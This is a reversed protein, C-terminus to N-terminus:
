VGGGPDKNRSIFKEDKNTSMDCYKSDKKSPFGFFRKLRSCTSPKPSDEGKTGEEEEESVYNFCSPEEM